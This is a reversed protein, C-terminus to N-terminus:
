LVMFVCPRVLFFHCLFHHLFKLGSSKDFQVFIKVIVEADEAESQAEQYM